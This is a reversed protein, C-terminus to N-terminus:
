RRIGIANQSSLGCDRSFGCVACDSFSAKLVRLNTDSLRKLTKLFVKLFTQPM